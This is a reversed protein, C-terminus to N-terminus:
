CLSISQKHIHFLCQNKQNPSHKVTLIKHITSGFSRLNIINRQMKVAWRGGGEGGGLFFIIFYEAPKWFGGFIMITIKCDVLYVM